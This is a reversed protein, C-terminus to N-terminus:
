IEKDAQGLVKVILKGSDLHFEVSRGQRGGIDAGALPIGADQLLQRISAVNREGMGFFTFMHAGGAIKAVIQPLQAGRNQLEELLAALATDACQHRTSAACADSQRPLVVHALGGVRHAADYLALAVCSGLGQASIVAPAAAVIGEAMGVDVSHAAM